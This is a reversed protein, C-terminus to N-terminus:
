VCQLYIGVITKCLHLLAYKIPMLNTRSPQSSKNDVVFSYSLFKEARIRKARIKQRSINRRSNKPAFKKPAFKKKAPFVFTVSVRPFSFFFM